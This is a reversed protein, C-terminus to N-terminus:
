NKLVGGFFHFQFEVRVPSDHFQALLDSLLDLGGPVGDFEDSDVKEVLVALHRVGVIAFREGVDLELVALVQVNLFTACGLDGAYGQECHVLLHDRGQLFDHALPELFERGVLEHAAFLDLPEDFLQGALFATELVRSHLLGHFLVVLVVVVVQREIVEDNKIGVGAKFPRAHDPLVELDVM